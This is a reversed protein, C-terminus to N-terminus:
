HGTAIWAGFLVVGAFIVYRVYRVARANAPPQGSPPRFLLRALRQNPWRTVALSVLGLVVLAVGEVQKTSVARGNDPRGLGSADAM